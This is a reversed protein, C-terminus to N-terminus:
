TRTRALEPATGAAVAGECITSEGSTGGGAM